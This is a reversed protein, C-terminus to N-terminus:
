GKCMCTSYNRTVGPWEHVHLSDGVEWGYFHQITLTPLPSHCTVFIISLYIMNYHHLDQVCSMGRHMLLTLTCFLLQNAHCYMNCKAEELLLM